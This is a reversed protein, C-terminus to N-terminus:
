FGLKQFEVQAKKYDQPIGIDLFYGDSIFGYIFEQSYIQEFFDKELSFKKPQNSELLYRPNMLYIGGNIMGYGFKTNKEAFNTIRDNEGITVSGYREVADVMRLALSLPTSKSRHFAVFKQLDVAFMTDGNMILVESSKAYQLANKVGGGTGLPETELAYEIEIGNFAAGFHNKIADSKYGVSLIVRTIGYKKLYNFQYELFPRGGIDAMSKPVESVVERLRTGLGGALIVAEM